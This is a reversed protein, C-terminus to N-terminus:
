ETPDAMVQHAFDRLLNLNDAGFEAQDAAPDLGRPRSDLPVASPSVDYAADTLDSEIFEDTAFSNSSISKSQGGARLRRSLFAMYELEDGTYIDTPNVTTLLAEPSSTASVLSAHTESIQRLVDSIQTLSSDNLKTENQLADLLITQTEEIKRIVSMRMANRLSDLTAQSAPSFVVARVKADSVGALRATKPLSSTSAYHFLIEEIEEPTIRLKAIMTTPQSAVWDPSMSKTASRSQLSAEYRSAITESERQRADNDATTFSEILEPISQSSIPGTLDGFAFTQQTPSDTM